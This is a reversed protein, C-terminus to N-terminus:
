FCNCSCCFCSDRKCSSCNFDLAIRIDCSFGWPWSASTWVSDWFSSSSALGKFDDMEFVCLRSVGETSLRSSLSFDPNEMRLLLVKGPLSFPDWSSSSSLVPIHLENEYKQPVHPHPGGCTCIYTNIESDQDPKKALHAHHAGLHGTSLWKIYFKKKM